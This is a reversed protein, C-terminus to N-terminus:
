KCCKLKQMRVKWTNLDFLGRSAAVILDIAIPLTVEIIVDVKANDEDSLDMEDVMLKGVEIVIGKKQSGSLSPVKEVLEMARVALTIVISTDLKQDQFLKKVDDFIKKVYEQDSM